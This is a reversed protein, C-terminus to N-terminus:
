KISKTAKALQEKLKKNENKVRLLEQRLSKLEVIDEQYSLVIEDLYQDVEHPSYGRFTKSFVKNHIDTPAIRM